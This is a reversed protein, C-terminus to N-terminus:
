RFIILELIGFRTKKIDLDPTLPRRPIIWGSVFDREIQARHFGSSLNGAELICFLVTM